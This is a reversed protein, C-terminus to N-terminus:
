KLNILLYFHIFIDEMNTIENEKKLGFNSILMMLTKQWINYRCIQMLTLFTISIQILKYNRFIKETNNFNM